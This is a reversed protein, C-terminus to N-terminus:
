SWSVSVFSSQCVASILTVLAAVRLTYRQYRFRNPIMECELGRIRKVRVDGGRAVIVFGM